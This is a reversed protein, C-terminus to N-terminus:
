LLVTISHSTGGDVSVAAWLRYKTYSSADDLSGYLHVAGGPVVSGCDADLLHGSVMSAITYYGSDKDYTVRYAQAISGNM